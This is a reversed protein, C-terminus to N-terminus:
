KFVGNTGTIGPRPQLNARYNCNGVDGSGDELHRTNSQHEHLGHLIDIVRDLGALKHIHRQDEDGDIQYDVDEVGDDVRTQARGDATRCLALYIDSATTGCRTSGPACRVGEPALQSFRVSSLSM